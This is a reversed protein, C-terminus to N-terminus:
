APSADDDVVKRYLIYVYASSWVATLSSLLTAAFPVLPLWTPWQEWTDRVWNELLVLPLMVLAWSIVVSAALWLIRYFLRLRRGIVMDGAIRMARLPYMGPLTVIVLAIFTATMWYLTLCAATVGIMAALYAGFGSQALGVSVLGSYVALLIGFPILQVIILVALVSTSVLPAGARYLGDRLSPREGAMIERLLWVTTLWTLLAILGIYIQQAESLGGSAGTFAGVALLGARAMTSWNGTVADGGVESVISGLKSYTEQSTMGGFLVVSVSFTIVLSGFLRKHALLTRAVELTFAWYGPIDLSRVYDRRLSRRFSRHPRRARFAAIRERWASFRAGVVHRVNGLRSAAPRAAKPPTKRSSRSRSAATKKTRTRTKATKAM